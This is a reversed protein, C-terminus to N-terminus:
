NCIIGLAWQMVHLCKRTRTTPAPCDLSPVMLDPTNWLIMWSVRPWRTMMVEPPWRLHHENLVPLGWGRAEMARRRPNLPLKPYRPVRFKPLCLGGCTPFCQSCKAMKCQLLMSVTCIVARRNLCVPTWVGPLPYMQKSSDNVENDRVWGMLDCASILPEDRGGSWSNRLPLSSIRNVHHRWHSKQKQRPAPSM